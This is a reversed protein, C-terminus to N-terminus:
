SYYDGGCRRCLMYDPEYKGGQDVNTEQCCSYCYVHGCHPCTKESYEHRNDESCLEDLADMADQAMADLITDEAQVCDPCMVVDEQPVFFEGCTATMLIPAGDTREAFTAPVSAQFQKGCM